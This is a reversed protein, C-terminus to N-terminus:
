EADVARPDTSGDPIKLTVVCRSSDERITVGARDGYTAELRRRVSDLGMGLGTPTTDQGMDNSIAVTLFGADLAASISVTGGDPREAVGYRVANEVLPQLVLPPVPVSLAADDTCAAVRMRDAYRLREFELYDLAFRWERQFPVTEEAGLAYRLLDGLRELAGDARATDAEMLAGITHLANFLFHPNIQARLAALQAQHTLLRAQALAAEEDRIRQQARIVYSLGAVAVYLWAGTLMNYPLVPSFVRSRLSGGRMSILDPWVFATAVLLSYLCLAALHGALFRAGGPNWALRGTFHWVAIGLLGAAGMMSLGLYLGIPLLQGLTGGFSAYSTATAFAWLVAATTWALVYGIWRLRRMGRSPPVKTTTSDM